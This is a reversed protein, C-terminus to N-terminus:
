NAINTDILYSKSKSTIYNITEVFLSVSRMDVSKNDNISLNAKNMSEKLIETNFIM